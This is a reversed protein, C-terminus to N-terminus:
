SGPVSGTAIPEPAPLLTRLDVLLIGEQDGGGPISTLYRDLQESRVEDDNCDVFSDVSGRWRVHCDSDGPKNVSLAVIEDDELALLISRDGEFPDPVFFPGGEALSEHISEALGAEFPEYDEPAQGSQDTVLWIAGAVVLGAIVVLVASFILLPLDKRDAPV